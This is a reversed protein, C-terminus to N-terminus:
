ASRWARVNPQLPSAVFFPSMPVVAPTLKTIAETIAKADKVTTGSTVPPKRDKLM